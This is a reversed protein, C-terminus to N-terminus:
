YLFYLLAKKANVKQLNDRLAAMGELADAAEIEWDVDMFEIFDEEGFNDDELVALIDGAADQTFIILDMPETVEQWFNLVDLYESEEMFDLDHEAELYNYLASFVEGSCNGNDLDLDYDADLQECLRKAEVTNNAIANKIEALLAIDVLKFTAIQSM